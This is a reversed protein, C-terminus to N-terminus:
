VEAKNGGDEAAGGAGATKLDNGNKMGGRVNTALIYKKIREIVDPPGFGGSKTVIYRFSGAMDLQGIVVGPMIETCPRISGKVQNLTSFLTDGGFVVLTTGADTTNLVRAAMKGLNGSVVSWKDGDAVRREFEGAEDAAKAYILAIDVGTKSDIFSQGEDGDMYGPDFLQRDELGAEVDAVAKANEIQKKTIDNLSGSIVFLKEGIKDIMDASRPFEIMETLFEAFGACGSFATFSASAKAIRRLEEDTEADFVDIRNQTPRIGKESNSHCKTEIGSQEGIIAPIYSEKVPDFPDDGFVTKHIPVGDLMHVGDKTTRGNKPFAPAFCIGTHWAKATASLEAGINGRLGSDTKKYVYRIGSEYARKAIDYVRKGADEGSMHRSEADVVIVSVDKPISDFCIETDHTVTTAIGKKAFQVGTDLAGTFDDSLILLKVM